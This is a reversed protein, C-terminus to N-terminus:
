SAEGRVAALLQEVGMERSVLHAELRQLALRASNQLSVYLKMVPQPEGDGRILGHEAIYADILDVKATLRVYQDLFGRGIPDLDRPSLRLQRLVRRRHNRALPRIRDRSSAGHKVAALNGPEFSM